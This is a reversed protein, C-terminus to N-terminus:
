ISACGLGTKTEKSLLCVKRISGSWGRSHGVVIQADDDDDDVCAQLGHCELHEILTSTVICEVDVVANTATGIQFYRGVSGVPVPCHTSHHGHRREDEHAECEGLRARM